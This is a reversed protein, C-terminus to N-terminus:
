PCHLINRNAFNAKGDPSACYALYNLQTTETKTRLASHSGAGCGPKNGGSKGKSGGSKTGGLSGGLSCDEFTLEYRSPVGMLANADHQAQSNTGGRSRQDLTWGVLRKAGPNRSQIESNAKPSCWAYGDRLLPTVNDDISKLFARLSQQVPAQVPAKALQQSSNSFEAQSCKALQQHPQLFKAHWTSKRKDLQQHQPQHQPQPSQQQQQAQREYPQLANM